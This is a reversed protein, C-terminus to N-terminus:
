NTLHRNSTIGTLEVLYNDFEVSLDQTMDQAIGDHDRYSCFHGEGEIICSLGNPMTLTFSHPERGTKTYGWNIILREDDRGRNGIYSRCIAGRRWNSLTGTPPKYHM